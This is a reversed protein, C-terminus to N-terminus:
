GDPLIGHEALLALINEREAGSLPLADFVTEGLDTRYRAEAGADLLLAVVRGDGRKTAIHLANDRTRSRANPNAGHRLLVEAISAHGLAVADILPSDGFENVVNVDAGHEALFRVGDGFGEITMVHLPTEEHIWRAEILNPHAALLGVARQQDRVVADIFDGILERQLMPRRSRAADQVLKQISWLPRM